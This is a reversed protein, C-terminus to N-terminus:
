MQQPLSDSTPLAHYRVNSLRGRSLALSTRPPLLGFESVVVYSVCIVFDTFNAIALAARAPTPVPVLAFRNPASAPLLVVVSLVVLFALLCVFSLCAQLPWFEQLPLPPQLVPSLPQLALFEQLPLPPQRVSPLGISSAGLYNPIRYPQTEILSLGKRRIL